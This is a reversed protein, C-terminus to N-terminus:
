IMEKQSIANEDKFNSLDISCVPEVTMEEDEGEKVTRSGHCPLTLEKIPYEFSKDM